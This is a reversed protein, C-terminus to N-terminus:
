PMATTTAPAIITRLGNAAAPASPSVELSGRARSRPAGAALGAPGSGPRRPQQAAPGTRSSDGFRQVWPATKLTPQRLLSLSLFSCPSFPVCSNFTLGPAVSITRCTCAKLEDEPRTRLFFLRGATPHCCAVDVHLMCCPMSSQSGAPQSVVVGSVLRTHVEKHRLLTGLVEIRAAAQALRESFAELKAVGRSGANPPLVLLTRRPTRQASLPFTPYPNSLASSGIQRLLSLLASSPGQALGRGHCPM